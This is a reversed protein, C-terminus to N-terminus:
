MYIGKIGFALFGLLRFIHCYKNSDVGMWCRWVWIIIDAWSSSNNYVNKVKRLRKKNWSRKWRKGRRWSRDTPLRSSPRRTEMSRGRRRWIERCRGRMSSTRSWSGESLLRRWSPSIGLSLFQFFYSVIGALTGVFVCSITISPWGQQREKTTSSRVEKEKRTPRRLHQRVWVRLSRWLTGECSGRPEPINNRVYHLLYKHFKFFNFLAVVVLYPRAYMYMYSCVEIQKARKKNEQWFSSKGKKGGSDQPLVCKYYYVMWYPTYIMGCAFVM